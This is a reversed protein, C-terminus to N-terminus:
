RWAPWRTRLRPSAPRSTRRSSSGGHPRWDNSARTTPCCNPWPVGYVATPCGAMPWPKCASRPPRPMPRTWCCSCRAAAPPWGRLAHRDRRPPSYSPKWGELLNALTQAGSSRPSLWRSWWGASPAQSAAPLTPDAFGAPLGRLQLQDGEESSLLTQTRGGDDLDQGLLRLPRGLGNVWLLVIARPQGPSMLPHLSEFYPTDLPVRFHRARHAAAVGAAAALLLRPVIVFAALTTAYLHIWPAASAVADAAPGIRLPQVDPVRLGTLASAPGLLVDLLWQVQGVALFTSQWGARYDLVLGRLYMGTLLGGALAAAAVHMVLAARNALLPGAHQLWLTGADADDGRGWRALAARFGPSPLPLLLALYVVLNWAVVIWVAPALLNVRQPPGLQDALLGASFGIVAALVVWAAHWGRRALWRRAPADRPLLRQMAIAARAVVFQEPRAHDGVTSIAQRTAWRRDEVSWHANGVASERSLLLLVQRAETETM